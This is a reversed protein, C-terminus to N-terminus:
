RKLAAQWEHQLDSGPILPPLGLQESAALAERTGPLVTARLNPVSALPDLDPHKTGSIRVVELSPHGDLAELSELAPCEQLALFRLGELSAIADIDVLKNCASVTLCDIALGRAADLTELATVGVLELTRLREMAELGVLDKLRRTAGIRLHELHEFVELDVLDAYPYRGVMLVRLDTAQFISEFGASKAMNPEGVVLWELRRCLETELRGTWGDLAVSRLSPLVFGSLDPAARALELFEVADGYPGLWTALPVDQILVELAAVGHDRVASGLADPDDVRHATRWWVHEGSAQALSLSAEVRPPVDIPEIVLDM